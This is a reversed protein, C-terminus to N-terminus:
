RGAARLHAVADDALVDIVLAVPKKAGTVAKLAGGGSATIGTTLVKGDDRVDSFGAQALLSKALDKAAWGGVVPDTARGAGATLRVQPQATERRVRALAAAAYGADTDYGIFRRGTRVAAM